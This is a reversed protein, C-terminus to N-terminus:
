PAVPLIQQLFYRYPPLNTVVNTSISSWSTMNTSAVTIIVFSSTPPPPLTPSVKVENSLVSVLASNTGVSACAFYNTVGALLAVTGTTGTFSFSQGYQGTNTGQYLLYSAVPSPSNTPANWALTASGATVATVALGSIEPPMPAPEIKRVIRTPQDKPSRVRGGAMAGGTFLVPLMTLMLSTVSLTTKPCIKM